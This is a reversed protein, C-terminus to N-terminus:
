PSSDREIYLRGGPEGLTSIIPHHHELGPAYDLPYNPETGLNINAVNDEWWNLVDRDGDLGYGGGGGDTEGGSGSDTDRGCGGWGTGVMAQIDKARTEVGGGSVPGYHDQNCNVTRVHEPTPLRLDGGGSTGSGDDRGGSPPIDVSRGERESTAERDAQPGGQPPIRGVGEWHAADDDMHIVQVVPGVSGGGLIDPGLDRCGGGGQEIGADAEGM